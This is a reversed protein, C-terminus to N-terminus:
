KKKKDASNGSKEVSTKCFEILASLTKADLNHIEIELEDEEDDAIADPCEKQIMQVVAGLQESTLQSVYQAFKLKDARSTENGNEDDKGRNKKTTKIKSIKKEFLKSLKDATAYIDSDQRNYTMANRWVLRMDKAFENPSPYKGEELKTQITGLDMPQTIVQPYDFLEYQEWDVPELFAEAEPKGQFMKLIQHCEQLPESLKAIASAGGSSSSSSVSKRKKPQNSTTTARSM